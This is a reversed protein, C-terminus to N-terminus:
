CGFEQKAIILKDGAPYVRFTMKKEGDPMQLMNKWTKGEDSSQLLNNKTSFYLKDKFFFVNEVGTQQHLYAEAVHNSWTQGDDESYLFSCKNGPNMLTKNDRKFVYLMKDNSILHIANDDNSQFGLKDQLEKVQTWTKGGDVSRHIGQIGVVWIVGEHLIIDNAFGYKFVRDWSLGKDASKFVGFQCALYLHGSEDEIIKNVEHVGDPTSIPKWYEDGQSKRFLGGGFVHIYKGSPCAYIGNIGNEKIPAKNLMASMVNEAKNDAPRDYSIHLLQANETGINLTKSDSCYSIIKLYKPLYSDYAEWTQGQDDSVILRGTFQYPQIGKATSEQDTVASGCKLCLLLTFFISSFMKM